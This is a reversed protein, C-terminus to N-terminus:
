LGEHRCSKGIPAPDGDLACVRDVCASCGEPCKPSISEFVVELRRIEKKDRLNAEKKGKLKTTM